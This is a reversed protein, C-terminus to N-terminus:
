ECYFDEECFSNLKISYDNRIRKVLAPLRTKDTSKHYASFSLVPKYKKITKAAGLLVNEEYGEVDMKLFDIKEGNLFDDLKVIDIKETKYIQDIRGTDRFHVDQDVRVETSFNKAGLGKKVPVIINKFGNKEINGKLIEFNKSLPEFAYIKKAGYCACLLSFDGINAGADVVTKGKINKESVNYQNKIFVQYILDLTQATCCLRLKKKKFHLEIYNVGSISMLLENRETNVDMGILKKALFKALILFANFNLHKISEKIIYWICLRIRQSLNVLFNFEEYNEVVRPEGNKSYLIFRISEGDRTAIDMHGVVYKQKSALHM